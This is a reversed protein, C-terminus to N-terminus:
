GFDTGNRMGGISKLNSILTALELIEELLEADVDSEKAMEALRLARPPLRRMIELAEPSPLGSRRLSERMEGIHGNLRRNESDVLGLREALGDLAQVLRQNELKVSANEQELHEVRETLKDNKARFTANDGKLNDLLLRIEDISDLKSKRRLKWIAAAGTAFGPLSALSLYLVDIWNM